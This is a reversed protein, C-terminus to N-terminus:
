ANWRPQTQQSQINIQILTWCLLNVVFDVVEFVFLCRPCRCPSNHSAIALKNASALKTVTAMYACRPSALRHMQMCKWFIMMDTKELTDLHM